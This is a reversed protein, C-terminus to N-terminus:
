KVFSCRMYMLQSKASVHTRHSRVRHRGDTSRAAHQTGRAARRRGKRGEIRGALAFLNQKLVGVLSKHSLASSPAEALSHTAEITTFTDHNTAQYSTSTAGGHGTKEEFKRCGRLNKPHTSLCIRRPDSLMVYVTVSICKGSTAGWYWRQLPNRESM